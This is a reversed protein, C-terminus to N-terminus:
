QTTHTARGTNNGAQKAWSQRERLPAVFDTFDSKFPNEEEKEQRVTQTTAPIHPWQQQTTHTARGTNNGAQKAWSQRERLPAVFDTFDSKFPNEEEKEQRVTQTTAPIHPWQQQTTHTARGTNNGAQKAWSQRERLPAVFDTFDPKFPNEEEKEQRVTQTTAPIHPWQQQTTHTARGTNNGAQKAWSQRERLPAVFDTFDSKFPNEEEKEQRVTQTTAPIHPWHQQTTHTARGTNNGAQKAWSQRERLPAVFDTFDSKFPNEEEKEQRVTQTTAPIHPWHQQTTHTARGTNNGAQKAWSQRERLPAVFDTFDSKFPNEEEKEQRVTQTTAPIHPWQQQTTHTARGTNNGAQKAWSQRERLPAVFDTFRIQSSISKRRRKGAQSDTNNCPHTAV